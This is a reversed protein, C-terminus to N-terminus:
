DESDSDEIMSKMVAIDEKMKLMEEEFATFGQSSFVRHSIFMGLFVAGIIAMITIFVLAFVFAYFHTLTDRVPYYGTMIALAFIGFVLVLFGLILLPFPVKKM